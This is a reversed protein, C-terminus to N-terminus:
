SPTRSSRELALPPLKRQDPTLKAYTPYYGLSGVREIVPKGVERSVDICSAEVELQKGESIYVMPYKLVYTGVTVTEGKGFWRLEKGHWSTKEDRVTQNRSAIEVEFEIGQLQGSDSQQAHAVQPTTPNPASTTCLEHVTHVQPEAVSAHNSSPLDDICRALLTVLPSFQGHLGLVDPIRVPKTSSRSSGVDRLLSPNVPRYHVERDDSSAELILGHAFKEQYRIKFLSNLREPQHALASSNSFLPNRRAIEIHTSARGRRLELDAFPLLSVLAPAAYRDQCKAHAGTSRNAVRYSPKALGPKARHDSPEHDRFFRPEVEPADSHIVIRDNGPVKQNLGAPPEFLIEGYFLWECVGIDGEVQGASIQDEDLRLERARVRKVRVARAVIWLGEGFSLQDLDVLIRRQLDEVHGFGRTGAPNVILKPPVHDERFPHGKCLSGSSPGVVRADSTKPFFPFAAVLESFQETWTEGAPEHVTRPFLDVVEPRCTEWSQRPKM